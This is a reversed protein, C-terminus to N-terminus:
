TRSTLMSPPRGPQIAFCLLYFFVNELAEEYPLNQLSCFIMVTFDRYHLSSLAGMPVCSRMEPHGISSFDPAGRLQRTEEPPRTYSCRAASLFVPTHFTCKFNKLRPFGCLRQPGRSFVPVSPLTSRSRPLYFVKSRTCFPLSLTPESNRTLISPGRRLHPM